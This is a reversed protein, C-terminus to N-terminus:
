AIPDWTWAKRFAGNRVQYIVVPTSHNCDGNADCTLTGSLGPYDKTAFMRDRLATRPIYLVSEEELAVDEIADLIMNTADYPPALVFRIWASHADGFKQEYQELFTQSFGTPRFRGDPTSLYAREAASGAARLWDPTWMGDAGGVVTDALGELEGIQQALRAGEAVFVPAYLFDPGAKEIQALQAGFDIRGVQIAERAVTTGGLRGFEREFRVSLSEAYPSGDHITAGTLVGLRERVFRAMGIGQIVDNHTTRLSFPAHTAADTFAPDSGRTSVFLIGKESLLDASTRSHSNCGGGIVAAMQSDSAFQDVPHLGYDIGCDDNRILLRVRHGLVPSRLTVALRTAFPVERRPDADGLVMLAGLRIPRGSAVRVCGFPDGRCVTAASPKLDVPPNPGEDTCSAAVIALASAMSIMSAIKGRMVRQNQCSTM